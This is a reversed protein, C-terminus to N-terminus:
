VVMAPMARQSAVLIGVGLWGDGWVGGEEETAVDVALVEVRQM